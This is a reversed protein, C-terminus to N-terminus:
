FLPNNTYCYTYSQSFKMKNSLFSYDWINDQSSRMEYNVEKIAINREM